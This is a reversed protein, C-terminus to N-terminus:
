ICWLSLERWQDPSCNRLAGCPGHCNGTETPIEPSAHYSLTWVSLLQKQKICSIAEIDTEVDKPAMTIKKKRKQFILVWEFQSRLWLKHFLSLWQDWSGAQTRTPTSGEKRFPIKKSSFFIVKLNSTVSSRKFPLKRPFNHSHQPSTRVSCYNQEEICTKFM